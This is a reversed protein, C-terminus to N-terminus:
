AYPQVSGRCPDPNLVKHSGPGSTRVRVELLVPPLSKPELDLWGPIHPEVEKYVVEVHRGVAEDDDIHDPTPCRAMHVKLTTWVPTFPTRDEASADRV